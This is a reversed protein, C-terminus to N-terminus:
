LDSALTRLKTTFPLPRNSNSYYIYIGLIEIEDEVGNNQINLKIWFLDKQKLDIYKLNIQSSVEDGSMMGIEQNGWEDNGFGSTIPDSVIALRADNRISKNDARTVGVTTGNGFLSGFVLTLKDYKKFQDPLNMDYQKTTLSLTIPTGTGTSTRYDTRGEFMKLVNADKSSGYYLLEERTTPHIYKCFVEPYLGTCLSWAHYREDFVLVANNGSGVVDMSIGFMSLSRYFVGSVRDLNADNVRQVIEDARLSLVSYRLINSYNAENGVTSAGDRSWFRLNNGATHISLPSLSGVAINVDQITGPSLDLDYISGGETFRFKGFKRDKFVFLSDENSAVHVKIGNINQGDGPSYPFFGAGDPIGFSEFREQFGSWVLTDGGLETTVGILSGRYTDLISFHYGSTNNAEPVSFIESPTLEGQDVYTTTSPEVSDLFTEEGQKLGKFIGTSTAGAPAAPLTLTLYTDEDLYRPMSRRHGTGDADSSPDAAASALTNGVENYWVYRYYHTFNGTGDGTKAVTPKTTPDDLEDYVHWGDEDLWVLFDDENAFYIRSQIQVIWTRSDTNFTPLGGSFAPTSGSYGDPATATLDMWVETSFNFYEPQGNDSLRILYDEGGINYAAAMNIIETANDAEGGIVESGLRKSITGYQSYTGNILESLETDKLTSAHAMTNLGDKFGQSGQRKKAPNSRKKKYTFM